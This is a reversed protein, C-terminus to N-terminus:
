PYAEKIQQFIDIARQLNVDWFSAGSLYLTAWSRVGEAEGDLPGIQEASSLDFLGQELEGAQIETHWSKAARHLLLRSCRRDSLRLQDPQIAIVNDVVAQWKQCHLPALRTSPKRRAAPTDPYRQSLTDHSSIIALTATPTPQEINMLISRLLEHRARFSRIFGSSVVRYASQRESIIAPPWIRSLWRTNNPQWM